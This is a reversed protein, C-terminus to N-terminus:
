RTPKRDLSSSTQIIKEMSAFVLTANYSIIMCIMQTEPERMELIALSSNIVVWEVQEQITLDNVSFRRRWQIQTSHVRQRNDDSENNDWEPLGLLSKILLYSISHVDSPRGGGRVSVLAFPVVELYSGLQM